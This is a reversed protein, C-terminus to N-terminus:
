TQSEPSSYGLKSAVEEWDESPKLPGPTSQSDAHRKLIEAVTGDSLQEEVQEEDESEDDFSHRWLFFAYYAAGCAYGVLHGDYSVSNSDGPVKAGAGGGRAKLMSVVDGIIQMAAVTWVSRVKLPYRGDADPKPAPAGLAAVTTFACLVASFGCMEWNTPSDAYRRLAYTSTALSSALTIGFVHLASMGPVELCAPVIANFALTNSLLHTLKLHTLNATLLTWWRNQRIALPSLILNTTLPRLSDSVHSSIHHALLSPKRDPFYYAIWRANWSDPWSALAQRTARAKLLHYAAPAPLNLLGLGIFATTPSPDLNSIQTQAGCRIKRWVSSAQQHQISTFLEM